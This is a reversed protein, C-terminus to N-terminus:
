ERRRPSLCCVSEHFRTRCAPFRKAALLAARWYLAGEEPDRFLASKVRRIPVYREGAAALGVPSTRPATVQKEITDFRRGCLGMWDVDNPFSFAPAGEKEPLNGLDYKRNITVARPRPHRRAERPQSTAPLCSARAGLRRNSPAERRRHSASTEMASILPPPGHNIGISNEVMSRCCKASTRRLAADSRLLSGAVDVCPRACVTSATGPCRLRHDAGM